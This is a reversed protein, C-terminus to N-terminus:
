AHPKAADARFSQPDPISSQLNPTSSQLDPPPPEQRSPHDRFSRDRFLYEDTSRKPALM